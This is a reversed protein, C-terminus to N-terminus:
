CPNPCRHAPAQQLAQPFCLAYCAPPPRDLAALAQAASPGHKNRTCLRLNSLCEWDALGDLFVSRNTSAKKRPDIAVCEWVARAAVLGERWARCVLNLKYRRNSLVTANLARAQFFNPLLFPPRPSCRCRCPLLPPLSTATSRRCRRRLVGQRGTTRSLPVCRDRPALLLAIRELLDAALEHFVPAQRKKAKSPSVM